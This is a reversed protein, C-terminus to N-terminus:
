VQQPAPAYWAEAGPSLFSTDGSEANLYYLCATVEDWVTVWSGWHAGRTSPPLSWHAVGDVVGTLYFHGSAPDISRVYEVQVWVSGDPGVM